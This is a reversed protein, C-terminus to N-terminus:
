QSVKGGGNGLSAELKALQEESAQHVEPDGMVEEVAEVEPIYHMLMNEIGHKLTVSSSPCGQCSGRMELQVIGEPTFGRYVVDGGDEQVAPRIRTEILEKIMAVVEDDDDHIVTDAHPIMDVGDAVVPLNAAYFDTIVAFVEAKNDTWDAGDNLTVSVFEDGLFVRNVADLQFLARALPSKQASRLSDFQLSAGPTGLVPKGPIFKLSQPNPTDQTRIFLQRVSAWQHRLGGRGSLVGVRLM